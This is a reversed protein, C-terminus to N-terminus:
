GHTESIYDIIYQKNSNNSNNSNRKVNQIDVPKSKIVYDNNVLEHLFVEGNYIRPYTAIRDLYSTDILVSAGNAMELAGQTYIGGYVIVNGNIIVGNNASMIGCINSYGKIHKYTDASKSNTNIITQVEELTATASSNLNNNNAYTETYEKQLDNLQEPDTINANSECINMLTLAVKGPRCGCINVSFFLITFIVIFKRFM